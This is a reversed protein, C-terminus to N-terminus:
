AQPKSGPEADPDAADHKAGSRDDSISSIDGDAVAEAYGAQSAEAELYENEIRSRLIGSGRM